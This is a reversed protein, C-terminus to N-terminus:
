HPFHKGLRQLAARLDPDAVDQAVSDLLKGTEASMSRQPRTRARERLRELPAARVEFGTAESFLAHQRVSKLLTEHSHRVRSVWVASSARLVLKGGVFRIPQVHAALAPGVAEAWASVIEALRAVDAPMGLERLTRANILSGLRRAGHLSM